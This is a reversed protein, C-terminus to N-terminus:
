IKSTCVTTIQWAPAPFQVQDEPLANLARLWQATEEARVQHYKSSVTKQYFVGLIFILAKKNNFLM